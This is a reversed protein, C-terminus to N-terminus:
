LKFLHEMFVRTVEALKDTRAHDRQLEAPVVNWTIPTIELVPQAMAILGSSMLIGLVVCRLLWVPGPLAQAGGIMDHVMVM